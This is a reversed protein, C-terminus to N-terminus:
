NKIRFGEALGRLGFTRGEILVALGLKMEESIKVQRLGQHSGSIENL